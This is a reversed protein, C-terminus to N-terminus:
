FEKNRYIKSSFFYSLVFLIIVILPLFKAVTIFDTEKQLSVGLKVFATISGFILAYVGILIIRVKEVGFKFILPLIISTLFLSICLILGCAIIITGITDTSANLNLHIMNFIFAIITGIICLIFSLIYKSLVIEDKNIPLSHAYNEWKALKDYSFTNITLMMFIMVCMGSFFLFSDKSLLGFFLFFLLVFIITKGFSKITYLDKLILGLM